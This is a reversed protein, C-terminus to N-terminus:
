EPASLSSAFFVRVAMLLRELGNPVRGKAPGLDSVKADVIESRRVGGPEAGSPNGVLPDRLQKPLAIRLNELLVRLHLQLHLSLRQRFEVAM